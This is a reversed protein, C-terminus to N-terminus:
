ADHRVEKVCADARRNQGGDDMAEEGARRGRLPDHEVRGHSVVLEPEKRVLRRDGDAVKQPQGVAPAEVACLEESGDGRRVVVAAM